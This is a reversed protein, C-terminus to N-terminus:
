ARSIGVHEVNGRAAARGDRVYIPPASRSTVPTIANWSSAASVDVTSASSPSCCLQQSRPLRCWRALVVISSAGALVTRGTHFSEILDFQTFNRYSERRVLFGRQIIQSDPRGDFATLTSKPSSDAVYYHRGFTLASRRRQQTRPECIDLLPGCMRHPSRNPAHWLLPLLRVPTSV